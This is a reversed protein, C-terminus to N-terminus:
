RRAVKMTEVDYGMWKFLDTTKTTVRIALYRGSARTDVKYDNTHNFEQPEQWNVESDIFDSAGIQFVLRDLGTSTVQPLIAQIMKYARLSFQAEKDLDIGVREILSQKVTEPHVPLSVVGTVPTDLAYVRSETLSNTLDTVGLMVSVRPTASTSGATFGAQQLSITTEAGGCINPLDMFTWTDNRYNYVAAQNCYATGPYAVADKSVYCFYVLNLASDHHVFFSDRKSRDMTRYVLKRIREDSISRISMGDHAYIDDEGFVFHKSEVEVACSTGIIGGHSFLKRFNFVEGSGTYDMTWVQDQSYLIFSRGLSVGDRLPTKMEGIPNEGSLKTPDDIAWVIGTATSPSYQLPHCWKVMTPFETTGKTVNLAILFDNYTRMVACTHTANWDGRLPMYSGETALNRILPVMGKRALMSLGAAQTHTWPANNTAGTSTSVISLNGNIYERVTGDVDCVLIAETKPTAYSGIFRQAASLGGVANEFTGPSANFSGASSDFSIASRIASYLTKFVPSRQVRGEDFVVNVGKSFANLPLSYPSTDAIVGIAGLSRVPLSPM